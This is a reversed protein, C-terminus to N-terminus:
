RVEVESLMIDDVISGRSDIFCGVLVALSAVTLSSSGALASPGGPAEPGSSFCDVTLTTQRITEAKTAMNRTASSLVMIEVTHADYM